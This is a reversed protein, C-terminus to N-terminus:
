RRSSCTSAHGSGCKYGCEACVCQPEQQSFVMPMSLILGSLTIGSLVSLTLIMKKVKTM